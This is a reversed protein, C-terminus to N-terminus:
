DNRYEYTIGGKNKFGRDRSRIGIIYPYVIAPLADLPKEPPNAHWVLCFGGKLRGAGGKLARMLQAIIFASLPLIAAKPRWWGWPFYWWAPFALGSGSFTLGM